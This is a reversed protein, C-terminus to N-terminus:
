SLDKTMILADEDVYYRKRQGLVTFGHKEYFRRASKNSPRVELAMYRAGQEATIELLNEVLRSAVGCRRHEEAVALTTIHVEDLVQWAGIYAIVQDGPSYRAVLYIALDNSQLENVFSELPWPDKFSATEIASVVPIDAEHMPEIILNAPEQEPKKAM